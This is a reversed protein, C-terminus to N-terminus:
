RYNYLAWDVFHIKPTKFTIHKWNSQKIVKIM